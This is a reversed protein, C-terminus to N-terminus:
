RFAASTTLTSPPDQLLQFDLAALREVNSEWGQGPHSLAHSHLSGLERQLTEAHRMMERTVALEVRLECSCKGTLKDPLVHVWLLQEEFEGESM